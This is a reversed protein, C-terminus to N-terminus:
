YDMLKIAGYAKADGWGQATKKKNLNMNDLYKKKPKGMESVEVTKSIHPSKQKFKGPEKWKDLSLNFYSSWKLWCFTLDYEVIYM